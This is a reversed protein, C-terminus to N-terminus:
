GSQRSTLINQTICGLRLKGLHRIKGVWFLFLCTKETWQWKSVSVKHKVFNCCVDSQLNYRLSSCGWIRLDNYFLQIHLQESNLLVENPCIRVNKFGGSDEFFDVTFNPNDWSVMLIISLWERGFSLLESVPVSMIGCDFQYRKAGFRLYIYIDNVSFVNVVYIRAGHNTPLWTGLSWSFSFNNRFNIWYYFVTKMTKFNHFCLSLRPFSFVVTPQTEVTKTTTGFM